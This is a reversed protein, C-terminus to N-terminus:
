DGASESTASAWGFCPSHFDQVRWGGSPDSFDDQFLVEGVAITPTPGTPRPTRTPARTSTPRATPTPRGPAWRTVLVDDIRLAMPGATDTAAPAAPTTNAPAPPNNDCAALLVTMALAAPLALYSTLKM